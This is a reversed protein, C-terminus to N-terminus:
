GSREFVLVRFRSRPSYTRADNNWRYETGEELLDAVGVLQYHSRVYADSWDMITKDSDPRRLWSQPILVQIVFRPAAHEIESIMERQMVSAFPQPEMLPYTYIYGTASRRHSYFYIEPESGLIAIRDDETSNHAIFDAIKLAEPFPNPAYIARSAVLPNTRFFFDRDNLIGLILAAVFLLLPVVTWHKDLRNRLVETFLSVCAGCLLGVAPLILVFYHDRFYFGPCTAAFSFFLFCIVLVAHNRGKPTCLLAILGTAAILWIFAAPHMVASATARLNQLGRSLTTITGYQEAYSFTWFWFKEFVGAHWLILCTAAFPLATGLLLAGMHVSLRRWQLGRKWERFTLYFLAFFVFFLGPQKMLFALGFLLGSCFYGGRNESDIAKILVLIGGIAPLVVFQTAHGASGSISPSISLVAFSLASVIGALQGFLRRALFYILVISASNVVLLGLHVGSPTQGFLSMFLAYMASTGPLKMTYCLQYPAIGQLILQGSYAYEGEDRELPLDLLRIRIMGFFLVVLLLFAYSWRQGLRLTENPGNTRAESTRM